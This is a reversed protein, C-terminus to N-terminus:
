QQHAKKDHQKLRALVRWKDIRNGFQDGLTGSLQEAVDSRYDLSTLHDAAQIIRSWDDSALAAQLLQVHDDEQPAAAERGCGSSLLLLVGIAMISILRSGSDILNKRRREM